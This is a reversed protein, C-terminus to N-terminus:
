SQHSVGGHRQESPRVRTRRKELWPLHHGVHEHMPIQAVNEEVHKRQEHKPGLQFANPTRLTEQRVVDNTPQPREGQM